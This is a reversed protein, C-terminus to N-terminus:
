WMTEGQLGFISGSLYISSTYLQASDVNAGRATENFRAYTYFLRLEPRTSFGKAAALTPAITFKSLFQPVSGNSKKVRDFGAEGVLKFHNSLAVAVRGGASYWTQRGGATGADERQYIVCLQSGLWEFPQITLVDLARVRYKSAPLYLSFDPYYFRALTGFGTGGGKGYQVALRNDGGLVKQVYQATAGWGSHTIPNGMADLNNSFDQIYQVGLQFEGSAWPRIGRLQLDNRFGLDIRMPLPPTAADPSNPEGDVAFVAYSLRLNNGLHVDEIGAGVGSPNWYFFDNIYISERKYYRTGAWATGGFLWSIGKLEIFLNPISVTAGSSTTRELPSSITGNPSYGGYSTPIFVTPMFHLTGVTGDEGVFTVMTFHTESWVECENGLRYKAVMGGPLALKFCSMRGKQNSGGFGGRFYGSVSVDGVKPKAAPVAEVPTPAPAAAVAPSPAPAGPTLETAPTQEGRQRDEDGGTSDGQAFAAGSFSLLGAVLLGPIGLRRARM